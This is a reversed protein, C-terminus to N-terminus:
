TFVAPYFLNCTTSHNAICLMFGSSSRQWCSFKRVKVIDIIHRLRAMLNLQLSISEEIIGPSGHQLFAGQCASFTLQLPQKSMLLLCAQLRTSPMKTNYPLPSTYNAICVHCHIGNIMSAQMYSARAGFAPDDLETCLYWFLMCAVTVSGHARKVLFRSLRSDDCAEYRLAQM